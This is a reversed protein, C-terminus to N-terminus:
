LPGTEVLAWLVAGALIVLAGVATLAGRRGARSLQALTLFFLALAFVIGVGVLQLTKAQVTDAAAARQEPHLEQYNLDQALLNALAAGRDYAVTGDERVEPFAARFVAGTSRALAELAQAEQDLVNALVPDDARVQDAQQRLLRQTLVLEQFAGALRLEEGVQSERGTLLQEKQLFEQQARQDLDSAASSNNSVSFTVAAGGLSALVILLAIRLGFRDAGSRPPPQADEFRPPVPASEPRVWEERERSEGEEREEREWPPVDDPRIEREWPAAEPREDEDADPRRPGSGGPEDADGPRSRPGPPDEESPPPRTDM